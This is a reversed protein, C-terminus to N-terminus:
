VPENCRRPYPCGTVKRIIKAVETIVTTARLQGGSSLWNPATDPGNPGDIDWRLKSDVASMDEKVKSYCTKTACSVFLVSTILPELDAKDLIGSFLNQSNTQPM